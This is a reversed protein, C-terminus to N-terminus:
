RAILSSKSVGGLEPSVVDEVTAERISFEAMTTGLSEFALIVPFCVGGIHSFIVAVAPVTFRTKWSGRRGQFRVSGGRLGYVTWGAKVISGAFNALSCALDLAVLIPLRGLYASPDHGKRRIM